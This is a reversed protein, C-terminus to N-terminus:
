TGVVFMIKNENLSREVFAILQEVISTLHTSLLEWFEFEPKSNSIFYKSSSKTCCVILENKTSCKALEKKYKKLKKLFVGLELKSLRFDTYQDIERRKIKCLINSFYFFPTEGINRKDYFKVQSYDHNKVNNVLYFEVYGRKGKGLKLQFERPIYDEYFFKLDIM